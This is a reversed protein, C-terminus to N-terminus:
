LKKEEQGSTGTQTDNADDDEDDDERVFAATGSSYKSEVYKPMPIIPYDHNVVKKAKHGFSCDWPDQMSAPISWGLAENRLWLRILHRSSSEGDQYAERAHLLGWNNLYVLDGAQQDLRLQHKNAVEQVVALAMEQELTLPPIFGKSSAHPGIRAPDMSVMLNGEHYELLPSLIYRKPSTRVPWDSRALVQLVQPNSVALENYVASFPVVCTRGGTQACERVQIALIDCGMDNHFPLYHNTHIGHRRDKPVTWAKFDTVHTIMTGMSRNIGQIGRMGGLYSSIGLFIIMNDEISYNRPDLGKIVCLGPGFHTELACQDLRKELGPLPFRERNVDDGNMELGKFAHLSTEIEDIDDEGLEVVHPTITNSQLSIEQIFDPFGPPLQISENDRSVEELPLAANISDTSYSYGCLSQLALPKLHATM